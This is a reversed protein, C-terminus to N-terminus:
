NYAGPDPAFSRAVCLVVVKEAGAGKLARAAESATSGTTFVDDVVLVEPPPAIRARFAGELNARRDEPDLKMQPATRRVRALMPVAPRGLTRAVQEALVGGHDLGTRRVRDPDPCVWTVADPWPSDAEALEGILLALPGGLSRCGSYKFRHIATRITRDFGVAQRALDFALRRGRCDRCEVSPRSGPRGCHACGCKALRPLADLCATCLGGRAPRRCGACCEPCLLDALGPM